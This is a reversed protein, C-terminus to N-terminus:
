APSAYAGVPQWPADIPVMKEQARVQAYVVPRDLGPPLAGDAVFARVADLMRRRMRIVAVDSTGLHEKTRDYLPGMSESMAFDENQTGRLGSWSGNRMAERDQLWLNQRTRTKRFDDDVDIGRVTGGWADHAAREEASLPVGDTKYRVYRFMTNEDDIPVFMHQWATGAPAPVVTFFPAMFHTVRVYRMTSADRTPIRIAAYRFGYPTDEVEIRPKGDRSPRDMDFTRGGTSYATAGVGHAPKIGDSHLYNSHASDLVGELGQVWNCESHVNTIMRDSEPVTTFEFAPREPETGPPGLYAWVLGGSEYCPVGRVSAMGAADRRATLDEGLLRLARPPGGAALDASPFAPIWYRRLMAGMATGPGVRCLLENEERSLM